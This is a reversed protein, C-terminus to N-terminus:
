LYLPRRAREERDTRDEDNRPAAHAGQRNDFADMSRQVGHMIEWFAARTRNGAATQNSSTTRIHKEVSKMSDRSAALSRAM